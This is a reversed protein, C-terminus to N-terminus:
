GSYLVMAIGRHLDVLIMGEDNETLTYYSGPRDLSPTPDFPVSRNDECGNSAFLADPGAFRLGGPVLRGTSKRLPTESWRGYRNDSPENPPRSLGNLYAVGGSSIARVSALTLRHAAYFCGWDDKSIFVDTTAIESPLNGRPADFDMWLKLAFIAIFPLSVLVACGFVFWRIM